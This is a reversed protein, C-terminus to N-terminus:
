RSITATLGAFDPGPIDYEFTIGDWEDTQPGDTAPTQLAKDKVYDPADLGVLTCELASYLYPQLVDGKPPPNVVITAGDDELGYIEEIPPLTAEDFGDLDQSLSNECTKYIPELSTDESATTSSESSTEPEAGADSDDSGCSTLLFATLLPAVYRLM